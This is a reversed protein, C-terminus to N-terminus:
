EKEKDLLTNRLIHRRGACDTNSSTSKTVAVSTSLPKRARVVLPPSSGCCRLLAERRCRRTFHNTLWPLKKSHDAARSARDCRQGMISGPTFRPFPKEFGIGTSSNGINPMRDLVIRSQRLKPSSVPLGSSEVSHSVSSRPQNGRSVQEATTPWNENASGDNAGWLNCTVTAAWPAYHKTRLNAFTCRGM